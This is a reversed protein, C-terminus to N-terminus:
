KFINKALNWNVKVQPILSKLDFDNNYETRLGFEISKKSDIRYEGGYSITNKKESDVIERIYEVFFNTTSNGFRLNAGYFEENNEKLNIIKILGSILINKGVGVSGNLWFGFGRDEFKLSDLSPSVYNHIRGFGLDVMSSNWNEKLYNDHIEKLSKKQEEDLMQLKQELENLEIKLSDQKQEDSFQPLSIKVEINTKQILLKKEKNTFVPSIKNTYSTDAMPDKQRYLTIKLSYALSRISDRKATGLSINLTSLTRGLYGIKNRYDSASTNEHFFIWIPQAEIAIDSVLKNDRVILDLKFDRSFGPKTVQSPNVGLLTFVPSSSISLNTASIVTTSDQGYSFHAYFVLSLITFIKTLM